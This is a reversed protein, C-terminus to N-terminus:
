APELFAWLTFELVAACPAETNVGYYCSGHVGLITHVFRIERMWVYHSNSNFLTSAAATRLSGAPDGSRIGIPFRFVFCSKRWRVSVRSCHRRYLHTMESRQKCLLFRAKCAYCKTAAVVGRRVSCPDRGFKSLTDEVLRLTRAALNSPRVLDDTDRPRAHAQGLEIYKKGIPFLRNQIAFLQYLVPDPGWTELLVELCM